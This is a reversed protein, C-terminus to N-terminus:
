KVPSLQAFSYVSPMEPLDSYDSITEKVKYNSLVQAPDDAPTCSGVDVGFVKMDPAYSTVYQIKGNRGYIVIYGKQLTIYALNPSGDSGNSGYRWSVAYGEVKQLQFGDPVEIDTCNLKDSYENFIVEDSIRFLIWHPEVVVVCDGHNAAQNAQITRWNIQSQLAGFEIIYRQSTEQKFLAANSPPMAGVQYPHGKTSVMVTLDEDLFLEEPEEGKGMWNAWLRDVPESLSVTVRGLEDPVSARLVAFSNLDPFESTDNDTIIEEIGISGAFAASASSILALALIIAIARRM